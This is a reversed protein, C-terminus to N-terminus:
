AAAHALQATQVAPLIRVQLDAPDEAELLRCLAAGEAQVWMEPEDVLASAYFAAAEASAFTRASSLARSWRPAKLQIQWSGSIPKRRPM